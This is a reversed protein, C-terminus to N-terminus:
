DIPEDQFSVVWNVSCLYQNAWEVHLTFFLYNLNKQKSTEFSLHIYHYLSPHVSRIDINCIDFGDCRLVIIVAEGERGKICNFFYRFVFDKRSLLDITYHIWFTCDDPSNISYSQLWLEKPLQVDASSTHISPKPSLFRWKVRMYGGHKDPFVKWTDASASKMVKTFKTLSHTTTSKLTKSILDLYLM